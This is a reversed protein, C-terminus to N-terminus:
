LVLAPIAASLCAIADALGAEERFVPEYKGDLSCFTLEVYLSKQSIPCHFVKIVSAASDRKSEIM